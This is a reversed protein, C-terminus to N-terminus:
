LRQPKTAIPSLKSFRPLTRNAFTRRVKLSARSYREALSIQFPAATHPSFLADCKEKSKLEFNALSGAM